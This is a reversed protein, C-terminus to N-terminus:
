CPTDELDTLALRGLAVAPAERGVHLAAQPFEARLRNALPGLLLDGANTLGGAVVVPFAEGPSFLRRAAHLALDALDAAAQLTLDRALADGDAALATVLPALQAVQTRSLPPHYAREILTARWGAPDLQFHAGLAAVLRTPAARGEVARVAARLGLLGLAYASGEDGLLAGWGGLVAERGDDARVAWATSGTGAVLAVGHPQYLGARAFVVPLEGYARWAAHPCLAAFAAAGFDAAVLATVLWRVAAPPAQAAALVGSVATHAAQEAEPVSVFNTNVAGAAATALLRGARNFLAAQCRTGGGELAILFELPRDVPSGSRRDV